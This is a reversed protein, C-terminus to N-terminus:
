ASREVTTLIVAGYFVNFDYEAWTSSWTGIPIGTPSARDNKLVVGTNPASFLIFIEEDENVVYKVGIYPYARDKSAHNATVKIPM